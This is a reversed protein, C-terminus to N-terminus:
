QLDAIFAKAPTSRNGEAMAYFFFFSLPLLSLIWINAKQDPFDVRPTHERKGLASVWTYPKNVLTM